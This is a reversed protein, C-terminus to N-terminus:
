SEGSIASVLLTIRRVSAALDLKADDVDPASEMTEACAQIVTLENRIQAAVVRTEVTSRGHGRGFARACDLAHEFASM